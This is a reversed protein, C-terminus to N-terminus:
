PGPARLRRPNQTQRLVLRHLLQLSASLYRHALDQQHDIHLVTEQIGIGAMNRGSHPAQDLATLMVLDPERPKHIGLVPRIALDEAPM